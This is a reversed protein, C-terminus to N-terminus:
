DGVWGSPWKARTSDHRGWDEPVPRHECFGSGRGQELRAGPVPPVNGGGSIRQPRRSRLQGWRELADRIAAGLRGGRGGTGEACLAERGRGREREADWGSHRIIRGSFLTIDVQGKREGKLRDRM